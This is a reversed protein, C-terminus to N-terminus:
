LVSQRGVVTQTYPLMLGWDGAATVAIEIPGSVIDTNGEAFYRPM